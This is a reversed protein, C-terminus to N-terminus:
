DDFRYTNNLEGIYAYIEYPHEYASPPLTGYREFCSAPVNNVLTNNEIDWWRVSVERLDPADPRQFLPMPVWRRKWSWFQSAITDPNIRCRSVLHQPLMSAPYESWGDVQLNRKWAESFARQQIHLKEHKLTKVLRDHPFNAPICIINGARTHPMGGDATPHMIIVRPLRPESPEKSLILTCLDALSQDEWPIYHLKQRAATNVESARCARLYGDRLEAAQLATRPDSMM